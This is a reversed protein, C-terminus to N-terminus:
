ELVPKNRLIVRPSVTTATARTGSASTGSATSYSFEVAKVSQPSSTIATGSENFYTITFNTLGTLITQTGVADTRTLTGNGASYTYSVSTTGGSTPKTLALASSTATTLQIATSVDDTMQRLTRRSEVEQEQFNVLRTLNRGLFLYAALVGAFVLASISTAVLIEVL